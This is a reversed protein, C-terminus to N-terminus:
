TFPLDARDDRGDTATEAEVALEDAGEGAADIDEVVLSAFGSM